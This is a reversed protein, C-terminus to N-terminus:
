TNKLVWKFQMVTMNCFTSESLRTHHKIKEITEIPKASKKIKDVLQTLQAENILMKDEASPIAPRPYEQKKNKDYNGDDDEQELGLISVLAYRRTYTIGSGLSQIDLPDHIIRISSLSNQGSIHCLMTTLIPNGESDSSPHQQISLGHKALVPRVSEIVSNINAYKHRHAQDTKKIAPFEAQAAALATFLLDVQYSLNFLQNKTIEM